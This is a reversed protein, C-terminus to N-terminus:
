QGAAGVAVCTGSEASSGNQGHEFCTMGYPILDAFNFHSGNVSFSRSSILRASFIFTDTALDDDSRVLSRERVFTAVPMGWTHRNTLDTWVRSTPTESFYITATGAPAVARFLPGSGGTHDSAVVVDVSFDSVWILYAHERDYVPGGSPGPAFLSALGLKGVVPFRWICIGTTPSTWVSGGVFGIAVESSGPPDKAWGAVVTLLCFVALLIVSKRNM